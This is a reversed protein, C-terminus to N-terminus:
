RRRELALGFVSVILLVGGIVMIFPLSIFGFCLLALGSAFVLPWISPRPLVDEANVLKGRKRVRRKVPAEASTAATGEATAQEATVPTETQASVLLEEREREEDDGAHSKVQVQDQQEQAM